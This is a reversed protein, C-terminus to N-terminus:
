TNMNMKLHKESFGLRKAVSVPISFTLTLLDGNRRTELITGYRYVDSMLNSNEPGVEMTIM